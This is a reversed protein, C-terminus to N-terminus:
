IFLLLVSLTNNFLSVVDNYNSLDPVYPVPSVYEKPLSSLTEPGLVCQAARMNSTFPCSTEKCPAPRLSSLDTALKSPVAHM